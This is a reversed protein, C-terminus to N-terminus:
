DNGLSLPLVIWGLVLVVLIIVFQQAILSLGITVVHSGISFFLSERLSFGGLYWPVMGFIILFGPIVVGLIFQQVVPLERFPTNTAGFVPGGWTALSLILLSVGLAGIVFTGALIIGITKVQLKVKRRTM